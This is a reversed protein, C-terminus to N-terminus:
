RAVAALGYIESSVGSPSPTWTAGGDTTTVILGKPGGAFGTNSDAFAVGLLNGGVKQATNPGAGGHTVSVITGSNGVAILRGPDNGPSAIGKLNHTSVPAIRQWTSQGVSGNTTVLISGNDDAAYGHDADTFTVADLKGTTGSQQAVWSTGRDHSALIVGGTGVAYCDAITPCAINYLTQTTGSRERTWSAGGDASCLILGAEGSLCGHTEDSFSVGKLNGHSGLTTLVTWTAGGDVTRDVTGHDGAAYGVLPSPFSVRKFGNTTHSVRQTWAVDADTRTLILGGDGVAVALWHPAVAHVVEIEATAAMAGACIIAIGVLARSRRADTVAHM